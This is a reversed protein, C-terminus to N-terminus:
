TPRTARDLSELLVFAESNTEGCMETSPQLTSCVAPRDPQGFILCRNDASLQACRVYAPKGTPMGPIPSSISPVICCAGCGM